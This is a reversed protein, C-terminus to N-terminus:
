RGGCAGADVQARAHGAAIRDAALLSRCMNPCRGSRLRTGRVTRIPRVRTAIRVPLAPKAPQGASVAVAIVRSHIARQVSDRLFPVASMDSRADAASM